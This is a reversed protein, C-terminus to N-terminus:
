VMLFPGFTETDICLTHFMGEGEGPPPPDVRLPPTARTLTAVGRVMVEGGRGTECKAVSM